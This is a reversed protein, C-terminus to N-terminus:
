DHPLHPPRGFRGVLKDSGNLMNLSVIGGSGPIQRLSDKVANFL